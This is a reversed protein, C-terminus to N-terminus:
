LASSKNSICFTFIVHIRATKGTSLTYNPFLHHTWGVWQLMLTLTVPQSCDCSCNDSAGIAPVCLLSFLDGPAWKGKFDLVPWCGKQKKKIKKIVYKSIYFSCAVETNNCHICKSLAATDFQLYNAPPWVTGSHAGCAWVCLQLLETGAETQPNSIWCM